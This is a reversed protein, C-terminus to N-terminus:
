VSWSWEGLSGAFVPPQVMPRCLHNKITQVPEKMQYKKGPQIKWPKDHNQQSVQIQGSLTM